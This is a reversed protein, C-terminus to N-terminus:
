PRESYIDHGSKVNDILINRSLSHVRRIVIMWLASRKRGMQTAWMNSPHAAYFSNVSPSCGEPTEVQNFGAFGCYAFTEGFRLDYFQLRCGALEGTLDFFSTSM